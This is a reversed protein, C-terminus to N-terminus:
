LEEQLVKKPTQLKNNTNTPVHNWTKTAVNEHLSIYFLNEIMQIDM